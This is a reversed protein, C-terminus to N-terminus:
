SAVWQFASAIWLATALIVGAIQWPIAARMEALVGSLSTFTSSGTYNMAVFSSIAAMGILIAAGGFMGPKLGQMIAAAITAVAAATGLVAGKFAFKRGPLLPLLAPLAIAGVLVALLAVAITSGGRVLVADQSYGGRVFGSLALVVATSLLVAPRRLISLEVPAVALRESLTFTVLRMEPTAKMDAVLFAPLDAALVPGFVVRFGTFTRVEHAAVGPAGLQPVVLTRHSVVEDLRSDLVRRSLEVTGFTGKGAACWVNVGSTDLVLIWAHMGHLERRLMDFSLKYNASVLVPSEPTPTGVAYLGPEVRYTSRGINWRVRYAGMRDARTLTTAVRRVPGPATDVQGTVWPTPGYDYTADPAACCAGSM